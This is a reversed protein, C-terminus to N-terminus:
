YEPGLGEKLVPETAEVAALIEERKGKQYKYKNFYRRITSLRIPVLLQLQRNYEAFDPDTAM